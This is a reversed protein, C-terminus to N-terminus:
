GAEDGPALVREIAQFLGEFDYCYAQAGLGLATRKRHEVDQRFGFVVVPCRIDHERIAGLLKEATSIPQGAADRAAGEGWHSIALAFSDGESTGALELIAEAATPVTVLAAEGRGSERAAEALHEFALENNEPHPDLWLIRRRELRRAFRLLPNTAAYLAALADDFGTFDRGGDTDYSLIEIGEHRRFHQRTAEPVDNVIAYAVPASERDQGLLALIESRLENLYADEFSFGMYLVTTTAMVARLFTAYAPDEYLRRRYDRRTLVVREGDNRPQSVDGHLKLTFAGAREDWYRRDWWRYAAPRLAERYAAHSTTAGALVDDFNTTLIARFPIGRLWRVRQAIAETLPPHGLSAELEALFRERGLADELLQAAEDLAHASGQQLCTAVHAATDPEVGADEALAALLKKWGPLDAAASFGAGVFAVCNGAQIEALLDAPTEDRPEPASFLAVGPPAAAAFRVDGAERVGLTPPLSEADFAEGLSEPAMRARTSPRPRRRWPRFSRPESPAEPAPTGRREARLVLEHAALGLGEALSALARSSPSKAGTEIEALYSYSLGSREALDRRSLAQEARLVQIARGLGEAFSRGERGREDDRRKAM